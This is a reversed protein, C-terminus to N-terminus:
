KAKIRIYQYKEYEKKNQIFDDNYEPGQVMSTESTFVIKSTDIGKQKLASILRDQAEKLRLKALNENNKYTTTPVKSASSEIEIYVVGNAKILNAVDNM